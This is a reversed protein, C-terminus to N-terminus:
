VFCKACVAVGHDDGVIPSRYGGPPGHTLLRLAPAPTGYQVYRRERDKSRVQEAVVLDLAREVKPEKLHLLDGLIDYRGVIEGEDVTYPLIPRGAVIRRLIQRVHFLAHSVWGVEVGGQAIVPPLEIRRVHARDRPRRLLFGRPALRDGAGDEVQVAGLVTAMPEVGLLHLLHRIVTPLTRLGLQDLPNAVEHHELLWSLDVVSDQPKKAARLPQRM